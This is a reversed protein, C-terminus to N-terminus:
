KDAATLYTEVRYCGDRHRVTIAGYKETTFVAIGMSELEDVIRAQGYGGSILAIRAASRRAFEQIFLNKGGHHPAVLIGCGLDAGSDLLMATQVSEADGPFLLSAGTDLARVILSTDNDQLKRGLAESCAPALVFFRAPGVEFEQGPALPLIPV